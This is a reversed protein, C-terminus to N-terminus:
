SMKLPVGGDVRALARSVTVYHRGLFRAVEKLSYGHERVATVSRRDRDRRTTAGSLLRELSPRGAFRQARPIEDSRGLAVRREDTLYM